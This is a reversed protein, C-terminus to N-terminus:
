KTWKVKPDMHLRTTKRSNFSTWGSYGYEADFAAKVSNLAGLIAATQQQCYTLPYVATGHILKNRIEAADRITQWNAAPVIASLKRNLPDYIEWAESLAHIGNLRRIIKDAVTSRFGASVIIQRLTRRLTKEATFLATIFAEAYHGNAALANIRQIAGGYGLKVPYM